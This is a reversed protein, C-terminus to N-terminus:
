CESSSGVQGCNRRDIVKRCYCSFWIKFRVTRLFNITSKYKARRNKSEAFYERVETFIGAPDDEVEKTAKAGEENEKTLIAILKRKLLDLKKKFKEIEHYILHGEEVMSSCEQCVSFWGDAEGTDQSQCVVQRRQKLYKVCRRKPFELLERLLFAYKVQEKFKKEDEWQEVSSGLFTIPGAYCSCDDKLQTSIEDHPKDDRECSDIKPNNEKSCKKLCFLCNNSESSFYVAM